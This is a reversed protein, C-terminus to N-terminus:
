NPQYGNPNLSHEVDLLFEANAKEFSNLMSSEFADPEITGKYWSKSNFYNQLETSKFKRGRRAYIENKAYNIQQLSMNQVDSYTLYRSASDAIIYEDANPKTEGSVPTDSVVATIDTDEGLVESEETNEYDMIDENYAMDGVDASVEANGSLTDSSINDKKDFLLGIQLWLISLLTGGLLIGFLFYPLKNIKRTTGVREGNVFRHDEEQKKSIADDSVDSEKEESMEITDDVLKDKSEIDNGETLVADIRDTGSTLEEFIDDAEIVGNEDTDLLDEEEFSEQVDTESPEEEQTFAKEREKIKDSVFSMRCDDCFVSDISLQKGCKKCNM